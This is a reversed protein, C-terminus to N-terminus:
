TNVEYHIVILAGAGGAGSTPASSISGSGGGGAGYNGSGATGGTSLGNGGKFSPASADVSNIKWLSGFESPETPAGTAQGSTTSGDVGGSGLNPSGGGTCGAQNGGINLSPGDGGKYNSEGGSGTQGLGKSCQNSGTAGTSSGATTSGEGVPATATPTASPAGQYRAFGRFGGTGTITAGTGTPNFTVNGGNYGSMQSTGSPRSVAQAATPFSISAGTYTLSGSASGTLAISGGAGSSLTLDVEVFDNVSDADTVTKSTNNLTTIDVGLSTFASPQSTLNTIAVLSGTVIDGPAVLFRVKAATSGSTLVIQVQTFSSTVPTLDDRASYRRFATGGAGGGSAPAEVGGGSSNAAGGSGGGGLVYVNYQVCGSEEPSWSTGTDYLYSRGKKKLVRNKSRYNSFSTTAGSAPLSSPVPNSGGNLDANLSVAGSQGYYDRLESMSISGSAHGFNDLSTITM